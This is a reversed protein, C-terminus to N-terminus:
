RVVTVAKHKEVKTEGAQIGSGRQKGMNVVFAKNNGPKGSGLM